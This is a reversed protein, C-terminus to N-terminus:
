WRRASRTPIPRTPQESPYAGSMAPEPRNPGAAPPQAVHAPPAPRKSEREPIETKPPSPSIMRFATAGLVLALAAVYFSQMWVTKTSSGTFIGHLMALAFVLYTGYHLRRWVTMTLRRRFRYSVAIILMLEASLVGFATWLPKFPLTGPVLLDSWGIDITTDMALMVGHLAVATLSAITLARHLEIASINRVLRGFPRTKLVLGAVMSLTLLFLALIGAARNTVWVVPLDTM